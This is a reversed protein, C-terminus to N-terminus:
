RRLQMTRPVHDADLAPATARHASRGAQDARGSRGLGSFRATVSTRHHPVAKLCGRRRGASCRRRGGLDMLWLAPTRALWSTGAAGAANWHAVGGAAREPQNDNRISPHRGGAGFGAAPAPLRVLGDAGGFGGIRIRGPPLSPANVRGALSSIVEVGDAVLAAALQRAEATGGLILITMTAVWSDPGGRGIREDVGGGRRSARAIDAIAVPRGNGLIGRDEVAGHYTNRGGLQVNLAGAFAAEVVGANPSPHQRADHRVVDIANRMDGGVLPAWAAAALAALRAPVWNALDDLRASAWGFRLYHASRHGIM